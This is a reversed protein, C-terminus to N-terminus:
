RILIASLLYSLSIQQIFYMNVIWVVSICSCNWRYVFIKIFIKMCFINNGLAATPYPADAYTPSTLNFLTYFLIFLILLPTLVAWSIRWYLSPKRNSMFEICDVFNELGYIWFVGIIELAALIFGTFSVVYYDTIVLFYQGKQLIFSRCKKWEMTNSDYFWNEM